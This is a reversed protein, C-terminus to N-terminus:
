HRVISDSMDLLMNLECHLQKGGGYFLLCVQLRGLQCCRCSGPVMRSRFHAWLWHLTASIMVSGGPLIMFAALVRSHEHHRWLTQAPSSRLWLKPTNGGKLLQWHINFVLQMIQHQTFAEWYVVFECMALQGSLWESVELTQLQCILGEPVCNVYCM